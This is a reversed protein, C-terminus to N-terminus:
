TQSLERKLWVRAVVWERKVTAASIGLAEATEDINLGAFYRLEVVRAQDPDFAALKELADNLGLIDVDSSDASEQPMDHVDNLTVARVGGGRKESLRARAHDVLVRRMVQGAVGFFQSRNKWSVGTQDVLRLYLENVLATPQLTHGVAEGRM